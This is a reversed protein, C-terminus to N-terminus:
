EKPQTAIVLKQVGAGKIIDLVQVVVGHTVRSDAKLVVSKETSQALRNILEQELLAEEIPEDNLYVAGTADLYVVVPSQRTAETHTATPLELNMAPQSVFTTSVMFFLLLVFLVDIFSTVNVFISRGERKTRRLEM